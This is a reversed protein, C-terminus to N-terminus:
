IKPISRGASLISQLKGLKYQREDNWQETERTMAALETLPTDEELKEDTEALKTMKQGAMQLLVDMEQPGDAETLTLSEARSVLDDITVRLTDRKVKAREL